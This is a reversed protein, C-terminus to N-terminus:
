AAFELVGEFIQAAEAFNGLGVGAVGQAFNAHRQELGIHIELDGAIEDFADFGFSKARFDNLADLGSLL